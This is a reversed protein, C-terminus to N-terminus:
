ISDHNELVASVLWLTILTRGKTQRMKFTIVDVSKERFFPFSFTGVCLRSILRFYPTMLCILASTFFFIKKINGFFTLDAKNIANSTRNPM